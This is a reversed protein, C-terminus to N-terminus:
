EHSGMDPESENSDSTVSPLKGQQLQDFARLVYRRTRFEGFENEENRKLTPFSVGPPKTDLIWELQSRDLGYMHAFIADLECKLRHRVSEDWRFPPGDYGLDNAFGRMSNSTYALELVRRAVAAAYTVTGSAIKRLYARPPLVPLQKVIFFNMHVGGVSMRAAWDLPISNVNGMILAAAVAPENAFSVVPASNGVGSQPIGAFLATRENTANTIDRFVQLWSDAPSIGSATEARGLGVNM